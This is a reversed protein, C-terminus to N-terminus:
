SRTADDNVSDFWARDSEFLGSLRRLVCRLLPNRVYVAHRTFTFRAGLYAKIQPDTWGAVYHSLGHQRAYELNQLWSVFYLNYDRADPYHLGIYKDILMGRHEFCLNYGIMRGAVRYFFVQGKLAADQLVARFFGADLCDFHIESQAFVELYRQYMEDLLAADAFRADGTPWVEIQLDARARLKRRIDRRRGSSLSALWAEENAFDIPLYALAQGEVIIFDRAQCAAVFEDAFANEEASLLPSREPVDKVILLPSARQWDKLISACLAEASLGVPMPAYESVTTGYFCTNWRLLRRLQQACPLRMFKQLDEADVTTLLDFRALFSPGGEPSRRPLFDKPPQAAFHQLLGAPELANLYQPM